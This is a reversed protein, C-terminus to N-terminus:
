QSCTRSKSFGLFLPFRRTLDTENRLHSLHLFLEWNYKLMFLSQVTRALKMCLCMEGCQLEIKVLKKENIHHWLFYKLIRHLLQGNDITPNLLSHTTRKAELIRMRSHMKKLGQNWKRKGLSCGMIPGYTSFRELSATVDNSSMLSKISSPLLSRYVTSWKEFVRCKVYIYLSHM